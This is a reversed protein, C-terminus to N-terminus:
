PPPIGSLLSQYYDYAHVHPVILAYNMWAYVEVMKRLGTQKAHLQGSKSGRKSEM